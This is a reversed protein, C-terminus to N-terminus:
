ITYLSVFMIISTALPNGLSDLLTNMLAQMAIKRAMLEAQFVTSEDPLKRAGEMIIDTVRM